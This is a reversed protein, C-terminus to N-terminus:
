PTKGQTTPDALLPVSAVEQYSAGSPSLFSRFLLIEEACFHGIPWDTLPAMREALHDRVRAQRATGLTIHPRYTRPEAPLGAHQCLIELRRQVALLPASPEVNAWVTHRRHSDGFTGIGRLSLDLPAVPRHQFQEAVAQDLDAALGEDVEGVFRLTLHLAEPATWRVGEVGHQLASLTEIIPAPIALGYFLRMM